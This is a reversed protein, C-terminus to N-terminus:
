IGYTCLDSLDEVKFKKRSVPDQTRELYILMNPKPQKIKSSIYRTSMCLTHMTVGKGSDRSM